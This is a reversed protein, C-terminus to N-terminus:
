SEEVRLTVAGSRGTDREVLRNLYGVMSRIAIEYEHDSVDVDPFKASMSWENGVEDFDIFFKKSM